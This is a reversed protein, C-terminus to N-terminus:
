SGKHTYFFTSPIVGNCILQCQHHHHHHHHHHDNTLTSCCGPEASCTNVMFCLLTPKYMNIGQLQANGTLPGLPGMLNGKLDWPYKFRGSPSEFRMGVGSLFKTALAEQSFSPAPRTIGTVPNTPFLTHCVRNDSIDGM